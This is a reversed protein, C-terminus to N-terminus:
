LEQLWARADDPSLQEAYLGERLRANALMNSLSLKPFASYWVQVPVQDHRTMALFRRGFGPTTEFAYRTPACGQLHTWIPVVAVSGSTLFDGLYREWSGDYDSLFLMRRGDDIHLFRAYHITDIGALRGTKWLHRAAKDASALVRSFVFTRLWGDRVTSFMTLPNQIQHDERTLLRQLQEPSPELHTDDQTYELYRFIGRSIWVPVLTYLWHAWLGVERLRRQGPTFRNGPPLAWARIERNLMGSAPDAFFLVRDLRESRRDDPPPAPRRETPVETNALARVHDRIEARIAEPPTTPGWASRRTDVFDAVVKRLAVEARITDASAGARGRHITKEAVVFTLLWDRLGAPRECPCGSHRRFLDLLWDGWHQLLEDLHAAASDDHVLNVLVRPPSGERAGPLVQMRLFHLTRVHALVSASMTDGHAHLAATLGEADHEIPVLLSLSSPSLWSPAATGARGAVRRAPASSPTASTDPARLPVSM